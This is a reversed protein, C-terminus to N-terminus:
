ERPNLLLLIGAARLSPSHLLSAYTQETKCSFKDSGNSDIPIFGHIRSGIATKDTISNHVHLM